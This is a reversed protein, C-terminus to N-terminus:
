YKWDVAAVEEPEQGGTQVLHGCLLLAVVGLAAPHLHAVLGVHGGTPHFEGESMDLYNFIIKM